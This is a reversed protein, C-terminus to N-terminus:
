KNKILVLRIGSYQRIYDVIYKPTDMKFYDCLEEKPKRFIIVLWDELTHVDGCVGIPFGDKLM